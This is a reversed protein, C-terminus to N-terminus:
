WQVRSRLSMRRGAKSRSHRLTDRGLQVVQNLASCSLWPAPFTSMVNLYFHTTFFFTTLPHILIAAIHWHPSIINIGIFWPVKPLMTPLDCLDNLPYCVTISLTYNINYTLCHFLYPYKWYLFLIREWHCYACFAIFHFKSKLAIWKLGLCDTLVVININKVVYPTNVSQRDTKNFYYLRLMIFFCLTQHLISDVM